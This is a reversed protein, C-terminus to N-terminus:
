DEVVVTAGIAAWGYLQQLPDALVHVCGHSSYPGYQSGPGYASDPEWDASHLFTGDGIFEMADGVWTPPYYFPSGPPWPSVMRYAAAKYFIHFTGRGTPLEPRGTTVPTRLFPCGDQYAVLQQTALHILILQAPAGPQCPIGATPLRGGAAAQLDDHLKQLDNLASDLAGEDGAARASHLAAQVQGLRSHLEDGAGYGDAQQLLAPIQALLGDAAARRELRQQLTSTAARLETMAAQHGALMPAYDRDMYLQVDALASGAGSLPVGAADASAALGALAAAAAAVDQPRGEGDLGGAVAALDRQLSEQQAAESTWRAALRAAGAPTSARAIEVLGAYYAADGAPGAAQRLRVLAAAARRRAAALAAASGAAAAAEPQRFPDSVAAGSVVAYPLPGLRRARDAALSARAGALDAAPVGAAQAAQWSGELASARVEFGVLNATLVAAAALIVALLPM